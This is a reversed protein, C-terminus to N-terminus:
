LSVNLERAQAVIVEVNRTTVTTFGSLDATVTSTGVPLSAFGYSGDSATVVTGPSGTATNTARVGVGRLRAGWADTVHGGLAASGTQGLLAAPILLLMSILLLTRKM